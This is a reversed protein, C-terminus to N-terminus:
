LKIKEIKGFDFLIIPAFIINYALAIIMIIPYDRGIFAVGFSLLILSYLNFTVFGLMIVNSTVNLLKNARLKEILLRTINILLLFTLLLVFGGEFHFEKIAYYDLLILGIGIVSFIINLDKNLKTKPM